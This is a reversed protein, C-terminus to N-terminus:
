GAADVCKGAGAGQPPALTRVMAIEPSCRIGKEAERVFLASLDDRPLTSPPTPREWKTMLWGHNRPAPSATAVPM